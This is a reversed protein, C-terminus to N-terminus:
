IMKRLLSDILISTFLLFLYIISTGFVNKPSSKGHKLLSYTFVSNLLIMSTAYFIGWSCYILPLITTPWLLLIYILSQKLTEKKGHTNPLMPVQAKQYDEFRDLSLMWFHPPTWLFIITFLIISEFNILGTQVSYGIMPPLAGAAGGIVINQSTKRKLIM